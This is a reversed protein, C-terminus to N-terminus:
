CRIQCKVISHVISNAFSLFNMKTATQHSACQTGATASPACSYLPTRGSHTEAGASHTCRTWELTSCFVCLSSFSGTQPIYKLSILGFGNFKMINQLLQMAISIINVCTNIHLNITTSSHCKFSPM